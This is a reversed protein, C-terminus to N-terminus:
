GGRRERCRVDRGACDAGQCGARYATGGDKRGDLAAGRSSPWIFILGAETCADVFAANESLFGYGPHIAQAGAYQAVEIIRPINLYSQSAQAPGIHYAEDAMRVHLADRDADSYIAVSILGLDRCARIVRVAIEGRNAILVKHFPWSAIIDTSM